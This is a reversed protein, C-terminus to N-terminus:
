RIVRFLKTFLRKLQFEVSLHIVGDSCVVLYGKESKVVSGLKSKVTNSRKEFDLVKWRQGWFLGSPQEICNLWSETGRMVHWIREIPWKEWEIITQHEEPRLNRARLTPSTLPQPIRPATGLAMERLARIVLRAGVDGILLDLREPSKIGLPISCKEQFIIDGTDEGQDIYHVTVGPNLDMFYYYWFDPNPGRYDPLFSPHLNITGLRPINFVEKKLLRSMSFVVIVDPNKDRIWNALSAETKSTLFFYPIDHKVSLVRLSTRRRRLMEVVKLIINKRKGKQERPGCEVIGRIRHSSQLLPHVIRSVGTTILVIDLSPM